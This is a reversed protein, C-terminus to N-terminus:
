KFLKELKTGVFVKLFSRLVYMACFMSTFIGIGLTFAFGKIFSTGFTFMILAVILTTINGDRISPWARKFANELSQLFNEKEKEEKFREFILINADVAMGISLIAGGIGALTLTVPIFKFLCLMILAYAALSLSAFVGNLGYFIIMFLVVASLGFIGAKLSKELSIKGLTPGITNQSILEIPVPLAGANLNRVLEKAEEVQFNGTIQARGSPIAENIVPASILVNDIYIALRKGVNEETLKKFLEKGDSDFELLVQAEMTRQDFGLVAEKIYRGTLQTPEFYPDQLDLKIKAVKEEETLDEKEIIEEAQKLIKETEEEPREKRFELYPTKGIMNIAEAVDRVGPLDVILRYSEGAEKTQVIPESVGFLNVRREIVDRLGQMSETKDEIQSLDAEYVLHTGGLLDLGLKFSKEPFKPINTLLPISDLKDIGKNIYSPFVLNFVFFVILLVIILNTYKKKMPYLIVSFPQKQLM